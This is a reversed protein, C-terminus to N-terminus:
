NTTTDHAISDAGSMLPLIPLHYNAVTYCHLHTHEAVFQLVCSLIFKPKHSKRKTFKTNIKKRTQNIMNKFGFPNPKPTTLFGAFFRHTYFHMSDAVINTRSACKKNDYIGRMTPPGDTIFCPKGFAPPTM